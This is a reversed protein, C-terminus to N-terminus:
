EAGYEARSHAVPSASGYVAREALGGHDVPLRRAVKDSAQMHKETM